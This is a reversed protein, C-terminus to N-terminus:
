SYNFYVVNGFFLKKETKKGVYREKVNQEAEIKETLAFRSLYDKNVKVEPDNRIEKMNGVQQWSSNKYIAEVVGKYVGAVYDAREARQKDLKWYKRTCEFLNERGETGLRKYSKSICVFLVKDKGCDITEM